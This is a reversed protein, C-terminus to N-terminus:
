LLGAGCTAGLASGAGDEVGDASDLAAGVTGGGAAISV